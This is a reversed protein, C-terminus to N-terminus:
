SKDRQIPIQSIKDSYRQFTYAKYILCNAICATNSSLGKGGGWMCVGGRAVAWGVYCDRFTFHLLDIIFWRVPLCVCLM